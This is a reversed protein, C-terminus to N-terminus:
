DGYKPSKPLFEKEIDVWVQKTLDVIEKVKVKDDRNNDALRKVSRGKFSLKDLNSTEELFKLCAYVDDIGYGYIIPFICDRYEIGVKNKKCFAKIMVGTKRKVGSITKEFESRNFIALWLIQSSYFDLAKGGSRTKKEGFTVGINIRVQSIIMLHVNSESFNKIRKRFKTSLEGAKRAGAYGSEALNKRSEETADLADWSDVIFLTKTKKTFVKEDLFKFLNEVTVINEDELFDIKHVPIGLAKAYKKDFAAETEVYYINGEPYKRSFNACAEIALLTKGASKDGIINSIRGIPYGGGLVKDLLTCGSPIFDLSKEESILYLGVKKKSTLKVRKM